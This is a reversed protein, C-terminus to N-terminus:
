SVPPKQRNYIVLNSIQQAKTEEKWVFLHWVNALVM